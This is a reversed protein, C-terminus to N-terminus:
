ASRERALDEAHEISAKRAAAVEPPMLFASGIVVFQGPRLREYAEVPRGNSIAILNVGVGWGHCEQVIGLAARYRHDAQTIQVVDGPHVVITTEEKAAAADQDAM